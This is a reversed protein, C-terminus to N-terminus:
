DDGYSVPAHKRLYDDIKRIIYKNLGAAKLQRDWGQVPKEGFGKVMAHAVLHCPPSSYVKGEFPMVIYTWIFLPSGDHRGTQRTEILEVKDNLSKSCYYRKGTEDVFIELDPYDDRLSLLKVFKSVIGDNYLRELEEEINISNM